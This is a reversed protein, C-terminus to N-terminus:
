SALHLSLESALSSAQESSPYISPSLNKKWLIIVNSKVLVFIRDPYVTSLIFGELFTIIQSILNLFLINSM